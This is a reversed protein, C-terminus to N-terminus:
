RSPFSLLLQGVYLVTGQKPYRRDDSRYDGEGLPYGSADEAHTLGVSVFVSADKAPALAGGHWDTITGGYDWDLGNFTVPRGNMAAIRLLTLGPKIGNALHWRSSAGSVRVSAIGRLTEDQMFLEARRQPDKAFLVIGRMTEGEAGDLEAVTVNGQGFRTRLEVLGDRAHLAGPLLYSREDALNLPVPNTDGTKVVRPAAALGHATMCLLGTCLAWSAAHLCRSRLRRVATTDIRASRSAANNHVQM